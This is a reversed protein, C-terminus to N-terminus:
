DPKANARKLNKKEEKAKRNAERNAEDGYIAKFAEFKAKTKPSLMNWHYEVKNM